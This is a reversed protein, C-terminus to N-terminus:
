TNVRRMDIWREPRTQGRFHDAAVMLLAETAYREWRLVLLPTGGEATLVWKGSDMEKGKIALSGDPRFILDETWEPHNVHWEGTLSWRPFIDVPGKPPEAASMSSNGLMFFSASVLFLAISIRMPKRSTKLVSIPTVYDLNVVMRNKILARNVFDHPMDSLKDKPSKSATQRHDLRAISM